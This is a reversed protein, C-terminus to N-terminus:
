PTQTPATIDGDFSPPEWYVGMERAHTASCASVREALSRDGALAEAYERTGPEFATLGAICTRVAVEAASLEEASPAHMAEWVMQIGTENETRCREGAQDPTEGARLKMTAVDAGTYGVGFHLYIGTVDPTPEGYITFGVDRFCEVTALVSAEYEARTLVGDALADRQDTSLGDWIGPLGPALGVIAAPPRAGGSTGTPGATPTGAVFPNFGRFALLRCGVIAERGDEDVSELLLELEAFTGANYGREQVCAVAVAEREQREDETPANQTAWASDVERQFENYCRDYTEPDMGATYPGIVFGLTRRDLGEKWEPDTHPIGAEDLCQITAFVAREYEAETVVGDSLIDRQPEPM